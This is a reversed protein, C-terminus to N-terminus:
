PKGPQGGPAPPPAPAPGPAPAPSPNQGQAGKGKPVKSIGGNEKALQEMFKVGADYDKTGPASVFLTHLVVKRVQNWERVRACIDDPGVVKGPPFPLGDTVLYITDAGERKPKGDPGPEACFEMGKSLAQWM